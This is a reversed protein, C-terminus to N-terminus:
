NKDIVPGLPLKRCQEAVADLRRRLEIEEALLAQRAAAYDRSEGANGARKSALDEATAPREITDDLM